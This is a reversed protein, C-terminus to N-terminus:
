VGANGNRYEPEHLNEKISEWEQDPLMAGMQEVVRAGLLSGARGCAELSYGQYYAYLFGVAWLDGAGTSDISKAELASVHVKKEGRKLWCGKEALKVAAIECHKSLKDLAKEPDDSGSYARAEDENAFVMDVYKDLLEHLHEQNEQVVEFSGLDFSVRCGAEKACRLIRDVLKPNHLLHGEVHTHTFGVFDTAFIDEPLLNQAAGLHTRMTRQSDPTIMSLCRGTSTRECYKIGEATIGADCLEEEYFKALEDQGLKGVFACAMGLKALGLLTNAASGGPQHHVEADHRELLDDLMSHEVLEMGGKDGPVREIFDETVHVLADVLPSGVGLIRVEQM